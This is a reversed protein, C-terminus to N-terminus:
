SGMLVAVDTATAQIALCSKHAAVSLSANTTGGELSGGSAPYLLLASASQNYVIVQQGVSMAPLIVGNTGSAGTVVNVGGGTLAAATGQTTGAAAVTGVGLQSNAESPGLRLVEIFDGANVAAALAIGEQITGTASVQGNAAAFVPAGATIAGAAVMVCTGQATRLRVPSVGPNANGFSAEHMVGIAEDAAGALALVGAALKVRLNVGIAAGPVFYKLPSEVYGSSSM